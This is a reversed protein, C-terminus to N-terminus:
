NKKDTTESRLMVSLTHFTNLACLICLILVLSSYPLERHFWWAAGSAATILVGAITASGAARRPIAELFSVTWFLALLLIWGSGVAPATFFWTALAALSGVTGLITAIKM